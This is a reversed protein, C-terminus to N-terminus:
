AKQNQIATFRELAQNLSSEVLGAAVHPPQKYYIVLLQLVGTQISEFLCLIDSPTMGGSVAKRIVRQIFVDVLENHLKVKSPRPM